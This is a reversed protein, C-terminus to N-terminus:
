GYGGQPPYGGGGGQPPYGGGQPPYGGGQPPYGGGQPPYGGGGQAPPYGGGAPPYGGGAQPPYGGGAPAQPMAPRVPETWGSLKGHRLLAIGAGAGFVALMSLNRSIDSRWGKAFFISDILMTLAVAAAIANSMGFLGMAYREIQPETANNTRPLFLLGFAGAIVGGSVIGALAGKIAAFGGKFGGFVFWILGFASMLVMTAGALIFGWLVLKTGIQKDDKGPRSDRRDWFVSFWYGFIVFLPVFFFGVLGGLAGFMAMPEMSSEEGFEDGTEKKKCAVSFLALTIAPGLRCLVRCLQRDVGDLVSRQHTGRM